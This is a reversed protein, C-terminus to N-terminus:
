YFLNPNIVKNSVLYMSLAAFGQPTSFVLDIEEDLLSNKFGAKSQDYFKLMADFFNVEGVILSQDNALYGMMVQATSASSPNNDWGLVGDITSKSEIIQYLNSKDVNYKAFGSLIAAATDVDFWEENHATPVKDILSDLVVPNNNTITLLAVAPLYSFVSDVSKLDQAFNIISLPVELGYARTLQLWKFADSINEIVLQSNIYNAVVDKKVLTTIDFDYGNKQLLNVSAVFHYDFVIKENEVKLYTAGHQNFMEKLMTEVKKAKNDKQCSILGTLGFIVIMGLLLFRTVKM